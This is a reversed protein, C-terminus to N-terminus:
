NKIDMHNLNWEKFVEVIKYKDDIVYVNFGLKRLKNHIFTQIARPKKGKQKLEVFFMKGEPLLVMRDPIGVLGTLKICEGGNEEIKKKFYREITKELM